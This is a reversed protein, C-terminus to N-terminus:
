DREMAAAVERFTALVHERREQSTNMSSPSLHHSRFVKWSGVPRIADWGAQSKRGLLIIIKVQPLLRLLRTLYPGGDLLDRATAARIRQGDGIYWPVINWRVTKTRDIGAERQMLFTNKATQDPNNRSVFGSTVAKPGPAEALFLATALVGGDMPDFYPVHEPRFDGADAQSSRETRIEHVFSTLPAVHPRQLMELRDKRVEPNALTKPGDIIPPTM